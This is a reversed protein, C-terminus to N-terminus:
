EIPLRVPFITSSPCLLRLSSSLNLASFGIGDLIPSLTQSLCTHKDRPVFLPSDKFETLFRITIRVLVESHAHLLIYGPVVAQYWSYNDSLGSTIKIIAVLFDITVVIRIQDSAVPGM